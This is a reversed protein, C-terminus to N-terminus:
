AFWWRSTIKMGDDDWNAAVHPGHGLKDSHASVYSNFMLVLVGGDNHLLEQMESYMTARKKTDTESRAQILLENFRPNKWSTDNWAADAAYATAFMWDITPRGQWYSACWAKKM